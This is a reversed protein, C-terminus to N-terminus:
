ETSSMGAGFDRLNSLEPGIDVGDASINMVANLAAVTGCSNNIVQANARASVVWGKKARWGNGRELWDGEGSGGEGVLVKASGVRGEGRQGEWEM